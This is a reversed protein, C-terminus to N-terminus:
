KQATRLKLQQKEEVGPVLNEINRFTHSSKIVKFNLLLNFVKLVSIGNDTSRHSRCLCVEIHIHHVLVIDICFSNVALPSESFISNWIISLIM